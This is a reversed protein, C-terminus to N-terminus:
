LPQYDNRRRRCTITCVSITGIFKIIAFGFTVLMAYNLVSQLLQEFNPLCGKTNLLEPQDFKANCTHNAKCCSHPVSNNHSGFWPWSQWDSYNQVGCCELRSQLIDVARTESPEGYKEFVEIMSKVLDASIKGKYIFGYVIATIEAAFLLLIFLLFFGLGVKSERLTACCGIIGIIFLVLAVALIIAAPIVSYKDVRFEDFNKYSSIVYVGVYTLVAGAAWFILSLFLLFAKSGAIGGDM